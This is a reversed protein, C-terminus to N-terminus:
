KHVVSRKVIAGIILDATYEPTNQPFKCAVDTFDQRKRRNKRIFNMVNQKIYEESFDEPVCIALGYRDLYDIASDNIGNIHIIPKGMAMYDIVKSPLSYDDGSLKNGIDLLFDAMDTYSLLVDQSVYGMHKITGNTDKEAQRIVDECDGRSFFFCKVDMQKSIQKIVEILKFPPRYCSSLHGSYVMVIQDNCSTRDICIECKKKSEHKILYPIDTYVSKNKYKKYKDKGYFLRNNNLHIILEARNFLKKELRILRTCMYKKMGVKYMPNNILSDLEYYFFHDFVSCAVCVDPPFMTGIIADYHRELNLEMIRKRYEKVRKVSPVPWTFVMPIHVKLYDIIKKREIEFCIESKISFVDGYESQGYLGDIDSVMLVDSAVGKEWLAKQVYMICLGPPTPKPLYEKTVFLVRM